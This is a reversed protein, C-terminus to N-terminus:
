FTDAPYMHVIEAFRVYNQRIMRSQRFSRPFQHDSANKPRGPFTWFRDYYGRARADPRKRPRALSSREHPHDALSDRSLRRLARLPLVYSIVYM